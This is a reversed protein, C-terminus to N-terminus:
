RSDPGILRAGCVHDDKLVLAVWQRRKGVGGRMGGSWLGPMRPKRHGCRLWGCVAATSWAAGGNRCPVFGNKRCISANTCPALRNAVAGHCVHWPPMASTGRRRPLRATGGHCIVVLWKRVIVRRAFDALRRQSVIIFCQFAPNNCGAPLVFSAFRKKRGM